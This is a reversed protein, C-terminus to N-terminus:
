RTDEAPPLPPPPPPPERVLQASVRLRQVAGAGILSTAAGVFLASQKDTLFWYVLCATLLVLGFTQLVRGSLYKPETM